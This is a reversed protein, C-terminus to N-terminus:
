DTWLETPEDPPPPETPEEPAPFEDVAPPLESPEEPAPFEDVAPPLESPEDTVAFEQTPPMEGATVPERKLFGRVLIWGGIIIMAAAAIIQAGGEAILFALGMFIMIGAPVLAWWLKTNRVYVFLFPLAIAFFVYAPVLLDDLVNLEILGVMIGVALLTYAPILAWWQTRNRVFILIFPLAISVLVFTAIFGDQLIGWEELWLMVAIALLVYAPILAWWQSRDRVYVVVFPIAIATLVYTAVFSDQLVGLEILALLGAVAWLAYTPVLSGWDSRDTLYVAFAALGAVTLIAAWTWASLDTNM